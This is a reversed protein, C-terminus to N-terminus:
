VQIANLSPWDLIEVEILRKNLKIANPPISVVAFPMQGKALLSQLQRLLGLRSPFKFDVLFRFKQRVLISSKCSEANDVKRGNSTQIQRFGDNNINQEKM